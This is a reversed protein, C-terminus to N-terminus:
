SRLRPTLFSAVYRDLTSLFEVEKESLDSRTEQPWLTARKQKVTSPARARTREVGEEYGDGPVGSQDLRAYTIRVHASDADEVEPQNFSPTPSPSPTHFVDSVASNPRSGPTKPLPLLQLANPPFSVSSPGPGPEGLEPSSRKSRISSTPRHFLNLAVSSAHRGASVVSLRDTAMGLEDASSSPRSTATLFKDSAPLAPATAPLIDDDYMSYITVATAEDSSRTSDISPRLYPLGIFSGTSEVRSGSSTSTTTSSRQTITPKPSLHSTPNSKPSAASLRM